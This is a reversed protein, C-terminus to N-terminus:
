FLRIGDLVEQEELDEDDGDDHMVHWLAFDDAEEGPPLYGVITGNVVHDHGGVPYSRRIRQGIYPNTPKRTQWKEHLVRYNWRAARVETAVLDVMDGDTHKVTWLVYNTAVVEGQMGGTLLQGEKPLPKPILLRTGVHLKSSATLKGGFWRQNNYGVLEAVGISFKAAIQKATENDKSTQYKRVWELVQQGTYADKATEQAHWGPESRLREMLKSYQQEAPEM